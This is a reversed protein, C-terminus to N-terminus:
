IFPFASRRPLLLNISTRPGCNSFSCCKKAKPASQDCVLWLNCDYNFVIRLTRLQSCFQEVLFLIRTHLNLKAM